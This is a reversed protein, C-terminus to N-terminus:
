YILYIFYLCIFISHSTLFIFLAMIASAFISKLIIKWDIKFKLEKFSYYWIMMTIFAYALLTTIAAGLIGFRPVFVFNLCVNLLSGIIWIMGSTKTKKKILLNQTFIICSGYLLMSLAILPVVFYSHQAIDPTTFTTLLPKSLVSLGFVAPIAIILFYKLSHRLYTKVKEIENEDHHKALTAPLLFGLPVIFFSICCGLTYAPAYYGVFLAGMLFGIFYKDSSQIVWYSMDIPVLPLCFVLYEKIKLFKPMKVGVMSIVFAGMIIFFIIRIILMSIVAGLLGYGLFVSSIILIAEIINFAISIYCYKKIEQFARLINTLLFNLCDFIIIPALLLIFIQNCGLFKSIIGSFSILLISILFLIGFIVVLVSWIGDQIKGKDKEGPLFRVLAYPLEVNAFTSILGLTVMLQIWIGYSEAGLLKTIIPLTILGSITIVIQMLGLLGIDKTFKQYSM